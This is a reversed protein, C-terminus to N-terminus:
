GLSAEDAWHSNVAFGILGPTSLAAALLAVAGVAGVGALAAAGHTSAPILWRGAAVCVLTTVLPRGVDRFYWRGTEGPLLRRHLLYIFPPTVAANLCLWSVGGGLLGFSSVLAVLLPVIVVLSALSLIVNLSTWGHALALNYPVVQLALVTSGLCLITAVASIHYATAASGTWEKILEYSFLALTLGAPIALVSALQCARHYWESLASRDGVAALATFRPFVASAIPGALIVPVQAVSAALVYYGFQELSLMKSVVLRDTQTLAASLLAMATMGGAYRWVQKLLSIAFRPGTVAPPLVRGLAYRVAIVYIANIAIQWVFFTELTPSVLWVVLVAGAGRVLSWAVQLVNALVQRERGLIGGQYFGAPLQLALVIGMLRVATVVSRRSLTHSNLWHDALLGAGAVVVLAACVAAIWYVTEVTRLLDRMEQGADNRVSLRAMERSLTATLGIDAFAFVAQLVAFFGVVGYAEIGLFRLYIPIFAYVSAVSLGRGVLNAIVNKRTQAVSRRRDADSASSPRSTVAAWTRRLDGCAM